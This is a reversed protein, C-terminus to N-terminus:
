GACFGACWRIGSRHHDAGQEPPRACRADVCVLVTVNKSSDESFAMVPFGKANLQMGNFQAMTPGYTSVNIPPIASACSAEVCAVFATLQSTDSYLIRPMNKSDLVMSFHTDPHLGTAASTFHVSPCTASTCILLRLRWEGPSGPEEEQVAIVPVGKSNIRLLPQKLTQGSVTGYITHIVPDQACNADKCLAVKVQKGDLFAVVPKGTADLALSPQEGESGNLTHPTVSRLCLADACHVLRIGTNTSDMYAIVPLGRKDLVISPHDGVDGASDLTAGVDGCRRTKCFLAKVPGPAGDVWYSVIPLDNAGMAVATNSAVGGAYRVASIDSACAVDGCTVIWLQQGDLLGDHYTIVPLGASTLALSIGGAAAHAVKNSSYDGCTVTKCRILWVDDNIGDVAAIVPKNGKDLKLAAMTVISGSTPVAIVGPAAGPQACLVDVCAYELMRANSADYFTVVPLDQKTLALSLFAGLESSGDTWITNIVPASCAADNCVALKPLKNTTDRFAIVANGAKNIAINAFRGADASVSLATIVTKGSCDADACAAYKLTHNTADYYAMRPWGKSNLAMSVDQGVQDTSGWDVSMFGTQSACEAATCGVFWVGPAVTNDPTGNMAFRALGTKDVAVAVSGGLRVSAIQGPGSVAAHAPTFIQTATIVVLALALVARFGKPYKM